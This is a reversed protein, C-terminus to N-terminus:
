QARPPRPPAARRRPPPPPPPHFPPRGGGCRRLFYPSHFHIAIRAPARVGATEALQAPGRRGGSSSGGRFRGCGERGPFPRSNGRDVRLPAFRAAACPSTGPVDGTVGPLGGLLSAGHVRGGGGVVG